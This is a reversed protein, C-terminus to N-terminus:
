NILSKFNKPPPIFLPTTEYSNGPCVELTVWLSILDQIEELNLDKLYEPAMSTNIPIQFCVRKQKNGRHKLELKFGLGTQSHKRVAKVPERRAQLYKGLGKDLNFKMKAMMKFKPPLVEVKKKRNRPKKRLASWRSNTLHTLKQHNSIRCKYYGRVPQPLYM